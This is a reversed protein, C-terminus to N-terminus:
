RVSSKKEVMAEDVLDLAAVGIRGALMETVRMMARQEQALLASPAVFDLVNLEVTQQMFYGRAGTKRRM